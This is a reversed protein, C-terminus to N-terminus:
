VRGKVVWPLTRPVTSSAGAEVERILGVSSSESSVVSSSSAAEVILKDRRHLLGAPEDLGAALTPSPECLPSPLVDSGSEGGSVGELRRRVLHNKKRCRCRHKALATCELEMRSSLLSFPLHRPLVALFSHICCHRAGVIWYSSSLM